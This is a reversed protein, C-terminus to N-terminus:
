KAEQFFNNRYGLKTSILQAKDRIDPGFIDREESSFRYAPASLSMAGVPYGKHDLIVSALCRIGEENEQNEEAFGAERVRELLHILDERDTITSPTRKKMEIEAFYRMLEDKPLSALIARGAATCYLNIRSGIRSKMGVPHSSEKKYIYYASGNEYSFLHVTEQSDSSIDEIFPRSIEILGSKYGYADGWILVSPGIQYTGSSDKILVNSDLFTALIRHVTTKSLGTSNSIETVGLSRNESAICNLVAIGRKLVRIGGNESLQNM